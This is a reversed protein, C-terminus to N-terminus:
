NLSATTKPAKHSAAGLSERTFKNFSRESDELVGTFESLPDRPSVMLKKGIEDGM